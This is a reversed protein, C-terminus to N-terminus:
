VIISTPPTEGMHPVYMYISVLIKCGPQCFCCPRALVLWCFSSQWRMFLFTASIATIRRLM